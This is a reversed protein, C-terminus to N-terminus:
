GSKQYSFVVNISETVSDTGSYFSPNSSNVANGASGSTGLAYAVPYFYYNNVTINQASLSANGTLASAQSTANELANEFAETRLATIQADSLTASASTIQINNVASLAGIAKSVNQTNPITVTLQESAVFGNYSAYVPCAAGYCPPYTNTQNYLNYYTTKILSLNGGIYKLLTANMQNLAISLNYTAAAATKGNGRVSLYLVGETPQASATGTASITIYRLNQMHETANGRQGGFGYAVFDNLQVLTVVQVILVLIVLGVLITQMNGDKM